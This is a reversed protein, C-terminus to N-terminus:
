LVVYTCACIYKLEEGQNQGTNFSHDNQPPQHSPISPPGPSLNAAAPSQGFTGSNNPQLHSPQQQEHNVSFNARNDSPMQTQGAPSPMYVHGPPRNPPMMGPNIMRMAQQGGPSMHVPRRMGLNMGHSPHMPHNSMIGPRAQNVHHNYGYQNQPHMSQPHMVMGPRRGEMGVHHPIGGRMPMGVSHQMRIHGSMGGHMGSPVGPHGGQYGSAMGMRPGPHMPSGGRVGFQQMNTSVNGPSNTMMPATTRTPDFNPISSLPTMSATGHAPSSSVSPLAPTPDALTSVAVMPQPSCSAGSTNFGLYMSSNVDGRPSNSYMSITANPTTNVSPPQAQPPTASYPTPVQSAVPPTISPSVNSGQHNPTPTLSNPVSTNNPTNQQQQQQPLPTPNASNSNLLGSTDNSALGDLSSLDPLNDM